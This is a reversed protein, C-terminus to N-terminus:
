VQKGKGQIIDITPFIEMLAFKYEQKDILILTRQINPQLNKIFSWM